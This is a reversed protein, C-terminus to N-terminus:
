DKKAVSGGRKTPRLPSEPSDPAVRKKRLAEAEAERRAVTREFATCRFPLAYLDLTARPLIIDRVTKATAELRSSSDLRSSSSLHESSTVIGWNIAQLRFTESFLHLYGLPAPSLLSDVCPEQAEHSRQYRRRHSRLQRTSSGPNSPAGPPIYEDMEEQVEKCLTSYADTDTDTNFSGATLNLICLALFIEARTPNYDEGGNKFTYDFPDIATCNVVHMAGDPDLELIVMISGSSVVGWRQGRQVMYRWEQSIAEFIARGASLMTPRKDHFNRLFARRLSLRRCGNIIENLGQGQDSWVSDTYLAEHVAEPTFCNKNKIEISLLRGNPIKKGVSVSEKIIIELDPKTRGIYDQVKVQAEEISTSSVLDDASPDDASVTQGRTTVLIVERLLPATDRLPPLMQAEGVTSLRSIYRFLDYFPSPPLPTSPDRRASVAEKRIARLIQIALSIDNCLHMQSIVAENHLGEDVINHDLCPPFCLDDGFFDLVQQITAAITDQLQDKIVLYRPSVVPGDISRDSPVFDNDPDLLFDETNQRYLELYSPLTIPDHRNLPRRPQLSPM